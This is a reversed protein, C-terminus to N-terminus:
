LYLSLIMLALRATNYLQFLLFKLLTEARQLVALASYLCRFPEPIWGWEGREWQKRAWGTLM